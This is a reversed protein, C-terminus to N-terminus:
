KSYSSVGSDRLCYIFFSTVFYHAITLGMLARLTCHIVGRLMNKQEEPFIHPSLRYLTAKANDDLFFSFLVMTVSALIAVERLALLDCAELWERGGLEIRRTEMGSSLWAFFSLIVFLAFCFAGLVIIHRSLHLEFEFMKRYDASGMGGSVGASGPEGEAKAESAQEKEKEEFIKLSKALMKQQNETMKQVAIIKDTSMDQVIMVKTDLNFTTKSRSGPRIVIKTKQKSDLVVRGGDKITVTEVVNSVKDTVIKEGSSRSITVVVKPRKPPQYIGTGSPDLKVTWGLNDIYTITKDAPNEIFKGVPQAKAVDAEGDREWLGNWLAVVQPHDPSLSAAADVINVAGDLFLLVAASCALLLYALRAEM